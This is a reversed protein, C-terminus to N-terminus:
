LGRFRYAIGLALTSANSFPFDVWEYELRLDIGRDFRGRRWEVGVAAMQGDDQISLSSQGLTPVSFRADADMRFGGYGLWVAGWEFPLYGMVRFTTVTFDVAHATQFRRVGVSLPSGSEGGKIDPTSGRGIEFGFHETLQFGGYLKRYTASDSFAGGAENEHDFMGIAVGVYASLGQAGAVPSSLALGLLIITRM